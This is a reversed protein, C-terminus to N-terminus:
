HRSKTEDKIIEEKEPNNQLEITGDFEVGAKKHNQNTKTFDKTLINKLIDYSEKISPIYKGAWDRDSNMGLQKKEAARYIICAQTAEEDAARLIHKDRLGSIRNEPKQNEYNIEYQIGYATTTRGLCLFCDDKNGIIEFSKFDNPSQGISEAVISKITLYSLKKLAENCDFIHNKELASHYQEDIDELTEGDLGQNMNEDVTTLNPETELTNVIETITETNESENKNCGALPSLSFVMALSLGTKILKNKKM